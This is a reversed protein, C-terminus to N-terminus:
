FNTSKKLTLASDGQVWCFMWTEMRTEQFHKLLRTKGIGEPGCVVIAHALNTVLHDLLELKETRERTILPYGSAPATMQKNLPTKVPHFFDAEM